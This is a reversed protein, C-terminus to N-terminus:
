RLALFVKVGYPEILLGYRPSTHAAIVGSIVRNLIAVGICYTARQLVERKERRLSRYKNWKSQNDWEWKLSDPLSHEEIYKLQRERADEPYKEEPYLYRAEERIYTNYAELNEYWEVANYYDEDKGTKAGSNAYGYLIYNKTILGAYWRFGFFTAWISAEIAYARVAGSKDGIYQEGLGPLLLSLALAKKHSKPKLLIEPPVRIHGPSFEQGYITASLFALM